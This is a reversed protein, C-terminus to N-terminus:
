GAGIVLPPAVAAVVRILAVRRERLDVSGVDRSERERPLVVSPGRGDRGGPTGVPTARVATPVYGMRAFESLKDSRIALAEKLTSLQVFGKPAFVRQAKWQKWAEYPIVLLRGVRNARLHKLRIAHQVIALSGIERAADSVTIGGLVDSTQLGLRAIWNQVAVPTRLATEDGTISRLRQTLTAAIEKVGLQGVLSALLAQEPAQWEYANRKDYKRPIPWDAETPTRGHWLSYLEDFTQGKSLKKVAGTKRLNEIQEVSKGLVHALEHSKARWGNELVFQEWGDPDFKKAIRTM